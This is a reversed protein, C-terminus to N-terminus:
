RTIYTAGVGAKKFLHEFTYVKHHMKVLIRKATMKWNMGFGRSLEETSDAHPLGLTRLLRQCEPWVTGITDVPQLKVGALGALMANLSSMASQKGGGGGDWHTWLKIQRRYRVGSIDTASAVTQKRCTPRHSPVSVPVVTSSLGNHKVLRAYPLRKGGIQGALSEMRDITDVECNGENLRFTAENVQKGLCTLSIHHWTGHISRKLISWVSEIGNTRVKSRVYEQISHKM